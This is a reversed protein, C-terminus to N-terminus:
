VASGMRQRCRRALPRLLLREAIEAAEALPKSGADSDDPSQLRLCEALVLLAQARAGADHHDGSAHEAANQAATPDGALLYGEALSALCFALQGRFGMTDIQSHTAQLKALGGALDGSRVMALGLHSAAVMALLPLDAARCSAEARELWHRATLPEDRAEHLHGKAMYAFFSDFARSRAQAMDLLETVAAEAAAFEGLEARARTAYSRATIDFGRQLGYSDDDPNASVYSWADDLAPVARAFEWRQFLELGEQFRARAALAADRHRRALALAKACEALAGYSDGRLSRLHSSQVYFLGRKRWDAGADLLPAAQTLHAALEDIRGLRFLPDRIALHLDLAIAARENGQPWRQVSALASRLFYAAEANAGRAMAKRAALRAYRVAEMWREAQRAHEALEEVRVELPDTALAHMADVVRGHIDRRTRQLLGASVSDRMLAHRFELAPEPTPIAELFGAFRLREVIADLADPELRAVRALLTSSTKSGIVAAAQLVLKEAGPLRDIRESLLGRITAPLHDLPAERLVHFRAGLDLLVGDEALGALMVEAFLPNGGARAALAAALPEAGSGALRMALLEALAEKCLPSLPLERLWPGRPWRCRWELRSTAVLLLPLDPLHGAVLDLVDQSEPDIWHLDETVLILTRQRALREFLAFVAGQMQIRREAPTMATWGADAADLGFVAALPALLTASDLAALSTRLSAIDITRANMAELGLCSAILDAVLQYGRRQFPLAQAFAVLAADPRRLITEAVLRSKGLGAEGRILVAGGEGRAVAERLAAVAAAERPRPVFERNEFRPSRVARSREGALEFVPIPEDLGKVDHTGLAHLDFYPSVLRATEATLLIANEQAMQEMRAALHVVEGTADYGTFTPSIIRKVVVEGSSLGIRVSIHVELAEAVAHHGEAVARRMELAAMCARAAHHESAQPAGFLAMIGDGMVRAVTGSHRGVAERMLGTAEGLIEDVQEPDRGSILSLSGRVDAFLVTLLKREGPDDGLAPRPVACRCFAM